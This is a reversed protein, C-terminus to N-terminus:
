NIRALATFVLILIGLLFNIQILSQLNGFARNNETGKGRTRSIAARQLAPAIAWTSYASVAIMGAFALHKLFIAQSWPNTVALLGVYSPNADMQILGTFTLLGLCFWGLPDLRKNLVILWAAFESPKLTRRLAPLVLLSLAALGGVWVVTALMHLWFSLLLAWHPIPM